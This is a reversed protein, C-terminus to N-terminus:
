GNLFPQPVKIIVESPKESMGVENHAFVSMHLLTQLLYFSDFM